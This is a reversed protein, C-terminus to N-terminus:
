DRPAYELGLLALDDAHRGDSHREVAGVLEDLVRELSGARMAQELVEPPIFEGARNRAEILGDTYCILRQGPRLLGFADDPRTALGL